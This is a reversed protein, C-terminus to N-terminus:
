REGFPRAPRSQLYVYIAEVEEDSIRSFAEFPMFRPNLERGRSNGDRLAASFEELTWGQLGTEHQTLNPPVGMEEEPAGPIAGGSFGRGHCGTCGQALYEGMEDPGAADLPAEPDLQEASLDDFLGFLLLVKGIMRLETPPTTSEQEPLSRVHATILALEADPMRAYEHSPMFIVPSGDPYVGRRVVNHLESGSLSRMPRTIGPPALRFPPADVLVRGEGARGHCEGCGRAFFLREAEERNSDDLTPIELTHERFPFTTAIRSAYSVHATIAVSAGLLVLVGLVGGAWKAIKKARAM